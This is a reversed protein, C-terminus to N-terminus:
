AQPSYWTPPQAPLRLGHILDFFLLFTGQIVVGIGNGLLFPDARLLVIMASGGAIYLVDLGANVLLTRRLRLTDRVQQQEDPYSRRRRAAAVLGAAALAADIAGWILAQLGIGQLLPAPLLLAIGGLVVSPVSWALLRVSVRHQVRVIDEVVLLM